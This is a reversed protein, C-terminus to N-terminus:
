TLKVTYDCYSHMVYFHRFGYARPASWVACVCVWVPRTWRFEFANPSLVAGNRADLAALDNLRSIHTHRKPSFRIFIPCSSLLARVGCSIEAANLLLATFDSWHTSSRSRARAGTCVVCVGRASQNTSPWKSWEYSAFSICVSVCHILWM